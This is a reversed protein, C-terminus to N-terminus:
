LSTNGRYGRRGLQLQNPLPRSTFQRCPPGQDTLTDCTPAPPPQAFSSWGRFRTKGDTPPPLPISQSVNVAQQQPQQTPLPWPTIPVSPGLLVTTARRQQDLIHMRTAANNAEDQLNNWPDNDWDYQVGPRPFPQVPTGENNPPPRPKSPNNSPETPRAPRNRRWTTPPQHISATTPPTPDTPQRATSHWSPLSKTKPRTADARPFNTQQPPPQGPPPHSHSDFGNLPPPTQPNAHPTPDPLGPGGKM